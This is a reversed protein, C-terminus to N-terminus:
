TSATTSADISNKLRLRTIQRQEEAAVRLETDPDNAMRTRLVALIEESTKGAACILFIHGFRTEYERQANALEQKVRDHSGAARSQEAESWRRARADVRATARREGIRPHHSFAELWDSPSLRNWEEDAARLLAERTGFPRRAVMAATWRTSGCCSSLIEAAADRPLSDLEEISITV